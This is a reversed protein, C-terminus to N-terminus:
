VRCGVGTLGVVDRAYEGGSEYENFRAVLRHKDITAGLASGLLASGNSVLAIDAAPRLLADVCDGICQRDLSASTPTDGPDNEHRYGTVASRSHRDTLLHDHPHLIRQSAAAAAAAAAAATIAAASAVATPSQTIADIPDGPIIRAAAIAAPITATATPAAARTSQEPQEDPLRLAVPLAAHPPLANKVAELQAGCDWWCWGDSSDGNGGGGGGGNGGRADVFTARREAVLVGAVAAADAGM